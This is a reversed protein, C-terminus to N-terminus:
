DEYVPECTINWGTKLVYDSPPQPKFHQKESFDGEPWRPDRLAREFLAITATHDEFKKMADMYRTYGNKEYLRLFHPSISSVSFLAESEVKEEDTPTRMYRHRFLQALDRILAHLAPRDPFQIADLSGGAASDLFAQKQSGSDPEFMALNRQVAKIPMTKSYMSFVWFLVYISSELDDLFGHVPNLERILNVSM